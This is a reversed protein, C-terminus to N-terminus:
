GPPPLDTSHWCFLVIGSVSQDNADLYGAIKHADTKTSKLAEDVVQQAITRVRQDTKIQDSRMQQNHSRYDRRRLDLSASTSVTFSVIDGQLRGMHALLRKKFENNKLIRDLTSSKLMEKEITEIEKLLRFYGTLV